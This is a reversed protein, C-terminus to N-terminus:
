EGGEETEVSEPETEEIKSKGIIKQLEKKIADEKKGTLKTLSLSLEPIYIEFLSRREAQRRAKFKASMFQKLKRGCDQLALKMEKIIDDYSAIASKGESTYPVWVSAIHVLIVYPGTPIGNSAVSQAGYQKWSVEQIAKTIACGAADYSLPIKNAYRLREAGKEKPIDGGYAVAAEVLFPIGKYVSPRRSVTTVFEANTDKLISKELAKEGIPSLCDTPPRMLPEKHLARLLNEIDNRDLDSIKKEELRTKKLIKDAVPGSIRTFDNTLFGKLSHAKTTLLMSQMVGFEIGHPHPKIETPEKPLKASTCPFVYKKNDPDVFTIKAHPNVISTRRLFEYVSKEGSGVYEAEILLEIRTGHDQKFSDDIGQHHIIPENNDAISLELYHAPKDPGTRSTVKSAVGTTQQAFLVASSIGIGQQGRSQRLRHFKSGYLLKGFVNPINRQIIGPGNDTVIVKYKLTRDVIDARKDNVFVRPKKAGTDELVVENEEVKYYKKNGEIRSARVSKGFLIIEWREKSGHILDALPVNWGEPIIALGHEAKKIEVSIEPLVLNSNRKGIGYGYDETADLSNDVAEKVVMLMSKIPSDFGLLHKNKKFFEAVSVAKMQAGLEQAIESEIGAEKAM